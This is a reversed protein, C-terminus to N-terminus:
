NLIVPRLLIVMEKKNVVNGSRGFLKSIGPVDGLGVVKGENYTNNSDILGGVVLM